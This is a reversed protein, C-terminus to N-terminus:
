RGATDTTLAGLRVYATGSVEKSEIRDLRRVREVLEELMDRETREPSEPAPSQQKAAKVQEELDPWMRNFVRSIDPANERLEMLDQVLSRMGEEDLQHGQFAALPGTVDAPGLDIYLPVVRGPENQLRKALAGAEFMLWPKHQNSATVCVIGFRSDDLAAAVESNWRMGGKIHQDSMWPEVHQAIEPLWDSLLRAISRSPEGSWSIFVQAVDMWREGSRGRVQDASLTGTRTSRGRVGAAPSRAADRESAVLDLQSTAYGRRQTDFRASRTQARAWVPLRLRM